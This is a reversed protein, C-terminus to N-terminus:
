SSEDLFSSIGAAGGSKWLDNSRFQKDYLPTNISELFTDFNVVVKTYHVRRFYTGKSTLKSNLLSRENLVYGTGFLYLQVLFNAAKFEAWDSFIIFWVKNRKSRPTYFYNKGMYLINHHMHGSPM